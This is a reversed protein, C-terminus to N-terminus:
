GIAVVRTFTIENIEGGRLETTNQSKDYIITVSGTYLMDYIWAIRAQSLTRGKINLPYAALNFAIGSKFSISDGSNDFVVDASVTNVTFNGEPDIPCLFESTPINVFAEAFPADNKKAWRSMDTQIMIYKAWSPLEHTLEFTGTLNRNYIIKGEGEFLVQMRMANISKALDDGTTGGTGGFKVPLAYDDLLTKLNKPTLGEILLSYVPIYVDDAGDLITDTTPMNPVHPESGLAVNAGKIVAFEISETYNGEGGTRTYHLTIVDIRKYSATGNEIAVDEGTGTVRVHAGDVLFETPDVHVSNASEINATGGHLIYRGEGNTYAHYARDDESGVHAKGARGTILEIAM